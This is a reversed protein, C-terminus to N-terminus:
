IESGAFSLNEEIWDDQRQVSRRQRVAARQARSQASGVLLRTLPNARGGRLGVSARLAARRWRPLNRRLVEEDLAIMTATAGPDGQRAARGFLQRDIRPSENMETVIVFLGGSERVKGALKIDTGRGAMNTAVTIKGTYGAEAVIAAEEEHRVANLVRHSLGAETLLASLTESSDVSRTGILVARGDEHLRKTRDVVSQWRANAGAFVRMPESTRLCPRNTPIRVSPVRYTQWLERRAEWATGTMGSLKGYLRFFKQFSLRALTQKPPQVELGEKAEVAQHIGARWTRDPMLRGTSEDVIVIKDDKVVYRQDRLFLEKATLAITVLEERRRRGAWVGGLDATLRECKSKGAETLKSERWRHNVSYDAGQELQEAVRAAHQYADVQEANPASGSIILPTVAEDVLISDAEDIIACALGRMVLRSTASTGPAVLDALIATTLNRDAGLLLRDRLFDAAAEKNTAYTVSAAYAARRDHNQMEGDVHRVTLGALNYVPSMEEADRKALYDNATILHVGRGRWGALTAALAGVITKGEGTAFEVCCGLELGLAAAFQVRHPRFGFARYVAEGALALGQDIHTPTEKGRAFVAHLREVHEAIRKASIDAFTSELAQIRAARRLLLTRRPVLQRLRGEVGVWISDLGKALKPPKVSAALARWQGAPLQTRERTAAQDVALSEPTHTTNAGGHGLLDPNSQMSSM